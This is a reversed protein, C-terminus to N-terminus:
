YRAGCEGCGLQDSSASLYVLGVPAAHDMSMFCLCPWNTLDITPWKRHCPIKWHQNPTNTYCLYNHTPLLDKLEIGRVVSGVVSSASLYVLGVPAAQNISMFCLCPWNILDITPWKIHCPIKWHQNPTNMYRLYNRTHCHKSPGTAAHPLPAVRDLLTPQVCVYVYVDYKHACVCM